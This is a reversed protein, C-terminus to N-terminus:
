ARAKKAAEETDILPVETIIFFETDGSYAPWNEQADKLKWEEEHSENFIHAQVTRILLEALGRSKAAWLESGNRHQFEVIFVNM